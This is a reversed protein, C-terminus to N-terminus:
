NRDKSEEDYCRLYQWTSNEGSIAGVRFNESSDVCTCGQYVRVIQGSKKDIVSIDIVDMDLIDEALANLKIEKLAKNARVKSILFRELTITGEYRNNIHEQPMISGIEYVGETGFSRRADLSQARGIVLNGIRLEITNGSVVSQKEQSAM